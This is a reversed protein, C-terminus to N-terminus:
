AAVAYTTFLDLLKPEFVALSRHLHWEAVAHLATSYRRESTKSILLVKLAQSSM